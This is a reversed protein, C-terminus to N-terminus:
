LKVDARVDDTQEKAISDILKSVDDSPLPLMVMFHVYLDGAERGKRVVGKGRVRVTSGSQTHPPVKLSIAGGPTPARVKAGHYAEAITIPLNLHLDDGERRFNPHSKVHVVLVLDGPEGGGVPRTGQKAVRVRSGEEAGPPIRVQVATGNIEASVITGRVASAFDITVDAELDQGKASRGRAGGRGFFDFIDSFGGGGGGSGFLDEVNVTGNPNVNPYRGGHRKSWERQQRARDPDFTERLSDEGFEDYLRRRKGDGLVDYARNVDKFRAEAQANNPNRDPHYEKALRRYAKKIADADAGHPVGLM